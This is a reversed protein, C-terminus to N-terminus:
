IKTSIPSVFSRIVTREAEAARVTLAKKRAEELPVENKIFEAAMEPMGCVTCMWFIQEAYALVEQKAAEAAETRLREIEELDAKPIYGLVALVAAIKERPHDELIEGLREEFTLAETEVQSRSAIKHKRDARQISEEFSIIADALGADVAKQGMYLGAEQSRIGEPTLGRNRSITDVLIGYIGDVQKQAIERAEESLPEHSSFDNKHAGAYMSTYKLGEQADSKSQDIHVSIVGISGTRGTRPLYVRDAASAIAYAASYATENITSVIPKRGRARHIGDVLDFLGDIEGGPSDIEFLISGVSTDELAKRFDEQIDRYSTGGFLMSLLDDNKQSLIGSVPIVAVNGRLGMANGKRPVAMSAAGEISLDVSGAAVSVMAQLATEEVLFPRNFIDTIKM